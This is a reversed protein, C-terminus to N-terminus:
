EVYTIEVLFRRDLAGLADAVSPSIVISVDDAYSSHPLEGVVKAEVKRKLMPNYLSIKSNVKATPHMAILETQAYNSREWYAIGKEKKIEEKKTVADAMAIWGLQPLIYTTTSTAHDIPLKSIMSVLVAPKPTAQVHQPSPISSTQVPSNSTATAQRVEEINRIIEQPITVEALGKNYPWEIWGILITEGTKLDQNQRGNMALILDASLGSMKSLRYLNDGKTTTVNIARPNALSSYSTQLKSPDLAIKIEKGISLSSSSMRNTKLISSVSTGFAKSLSYVTYGKDVKVTAYLGDAKISAHIVPSQATLLCVWGSLILTIIAKM